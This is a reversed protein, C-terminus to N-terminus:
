SAPPPISSPLPLVSNGSPNTTTTTSAANKQADRVRQPVNKQCMISEADVVFRNKDNTNYHAVCVPWEQGHVVYTISQSGTDLSTIQMGPNDGLIDAYVQSKDQSGSGKAYLGIGAVAIVIAAVVVVGLGIAKTTKTTKKGLVVIIAVILIVIGAILAGLFYGSEFTSMERERVTPYIQLSSM